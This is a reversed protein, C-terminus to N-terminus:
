DRVHGNAHVDGVRGHSLQRSIQLRQSSNRSIHRSSTFQFIYICILISIMQQVGTYFQLFFTIENVGAVVWM